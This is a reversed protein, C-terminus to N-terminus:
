PQRPASRQQVQHAAFEEASIRGDGDTDLDEFAPMNALNRMQGGQLAREQIRETRGALFEERTLEGDGNLDYDSFAPLNRGAGMRGQRPGQGPAMTQGAGMGRGMAAGGGPTPRVRQAQGARLESETLRGDNDTDFQEFRPAGAAGRRPMGTQTRENLRQERASYFEEQSITGDQNTDYVAFPIPGRTPFDGAHVVTAPITVLWGAAILCAINKM